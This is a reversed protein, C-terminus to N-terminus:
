IMKKILQNINEKRYGLAGGISFPKKIGKREFGGEPPKLRFFPKLGEIENFSTKSNLMDESFKDFDKKTTKELYEKTLHKKCPLRGRKELLLKLSEKNIEGWTIYDKVKKIMGVYSPKNDVIICHYKNFLHLIKLTDSIDKRIGTKGRIRIVAIKNM